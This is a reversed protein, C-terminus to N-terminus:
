TSTAVAKRKVPLVIENTTELDVEIPTVVFETNRTSTRYHYQEERSLWKTSEHNLLPWALAADVNDRSWTPDYLGVRVVSDATEPTGDYDMMGGEWHDEFQGVFDDRTVTAVGSHDTKPFYIQYPNKRGARVTLEVILNSLDAEGECQVQVRICEPIKMETNLFELNAAM